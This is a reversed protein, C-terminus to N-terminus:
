GHDSRRGVRPLAGLLRILESQRNVNTKAMLGSLHTRVTNISRGRRAAIDRLEEGALLDSALAAEAGTLGFLEALLRNSPTHMADPDSVCVLISPQRALSWNTEQRFPMALLALPRVGGSRPLHMAGSRAITGSGGVAGALVSRLRNDAPQTAARPVGHTCRLGDGISLLAAGAANAHMVLGHQDLLLVAHPLHDLASLAASALMDVHHLRRRLELARQLHPMVNRALALDPDQFGLTSKPRFLNIAHHVGNPEVAITLRLGYYMERPRWYEQYLRTRHFVRNPVLDSSRVVQGAYWVNKRKHFVSDRFLTALLERHGERDVGSAVGAAESRDANHTLQAASSLNFLGRLQELAHSWRDPSAAAEYIAGIAHSFGDESVHPLTM